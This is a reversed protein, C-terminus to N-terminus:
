GSYKLRIESFSARRSAGQMCSSFFASVLHPVLGTHAWKLQDQDVLVVVDHIRELGCETCATSNANLVAVDTRDRAVRDNRRCVAVAQHITADVAGVQLEKTWPQLLSYEVGNRPSRLDEQWHTGALDHRSPM